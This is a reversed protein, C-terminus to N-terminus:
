SSAASRTFAQTASQVVMQVSPSRQAALQSAVSRVVAQQGQDLYDVPSLGDVRALLLAPLLAAARALADAAPEWSVHATYAAVLAGASEVLLERHRPLVVSKLLLHNLVFALDFAPDGYWACEADILVPGGPGLLVNKPSVDGHVVTLHTGATRAIVDEFYGVLSPHRRATAVLYPDIRLARFNDDTAFRRALEPDGASRGHLRGVLDGVAAADPPRVAGALLRTKWVPHDEVPLYSMAFLGRGADHAVPVPVHGPIVGAAFTLWDWEVANRSVPAHWDGAVQLKALARKVCIAGRGTEVRWLQSSVGGTLPTWTATESPGALGQEVLFSRAAEPVPAGDAGTV